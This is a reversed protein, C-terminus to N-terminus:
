FDIEILKDEPTLPSLYSQLARTFEIRNLAARGTKPMQEM